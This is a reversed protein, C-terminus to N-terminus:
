LSEIEIKRESRAISNPPVNKVIISGAAIVSNSGIKVGKGILVHSGIWVNDGIEIPSGKYGQLRFSIDSDSFVHDHDYIYVSEAIMCDKGITIGYRSVISSNRNMFFNEGIKIESIELATIRVGESLYSKGEFSINATKEIDIEINKPVYVAYKKLKLRGKFKHTLRLQRLYYPIQAPNILLNKVVKLYKYPGSRSDSKARMM